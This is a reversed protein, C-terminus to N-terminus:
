VVFVVVLAFQGQVRSQGKGAIGAGHAHRLLHAYGIHHLAGLSQPKFRMKRLFQSDAEASHGHRRKIKRLGVSGKGILPKPHARADDGGDAVRLATHEVPLFHFM